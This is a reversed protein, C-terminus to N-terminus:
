HHVLYIEARSNRSREWSNRGANLPRNSSFSSINDIRSLDVQRTLLYRKVIDAREKALRECVTEVAEKKYAHGEIRITLSPEKLLLSVVSDLVQYTGSILSFQQPEFPVIIANRDPCGNFVQYGYEDKCSDQKDPIGDEDIDLGLDPPPPIPYHITIEATCNYGVTDKLKKRQISRQKGLAQVDDIRLSDVGRGAIYLKVALARNLSLWHCITDNGEDFYSYGNITFKISDDMQLIAAVSDMLEFTGTYNISSQKYEFPIIVTVDRTKPLSDRLFSGSSKRERKASINFNSPNTHIVSKSLLRHANPNFDRKVPKAVLTLQNM